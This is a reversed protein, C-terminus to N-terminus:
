IKCGAVREIEQAILHLGHRKQSLAACYALCAVMVRDADVQRKGSLRELFYATRKEVKEGLWSMDPASTKKPAPVAKKETKPKTKAKPKATAM